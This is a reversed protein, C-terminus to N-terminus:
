GCRRLLTAIIPVCVGGGSDLCRYAYYASASPVCPLVRTSVVGQDMAWNMGGLQRRKDGTGPFDSVTSNYRDIYDQPAQLQLKGGSHVSQWALYLFMPQAEGARSAAQEIVQEM